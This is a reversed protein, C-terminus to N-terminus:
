TSAADECCAYHLTLWQDPHAKVTREIVQALQLMAVPVGAQDPEAPDVPIPTEIVLRVKGDRRRMSFVPVLLAGSALALKVPGSPMLLHGGLFPVKIGKQGPMVRDGQMLVVENRGLAERLRMWIGWGEDVPAEILGLKAHLRSRLREFRPKLDRRFVIHVKPEIERLAAAGVEFSGMHATVLIAGTGAQRAALYRDHGEVAEIRKLLDARSLRLAQGIDYVFLYFNMIIRRAVRRRQRLPAQDGLLRRANVLVTHRMGRAFYWALTMYFLRTSRVVWPAHEAHWFLYNLWFDGLSRKLRAGLSDDAAATPASPAPPLVVAAPDRSM